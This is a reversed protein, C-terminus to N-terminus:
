SYILNNLINKEQGTGLYKFALICPGLKNNYDTPTFSPKKSALSFVSRPYQYCPASPFMQSKPNQQCLASPFMQSKPNHHCLSSPFMQSKPNQYCLASPFMQSKPKQYCPASPVNSIQSAPLLTSLPCNSRLSHFYSPAACIYTLPSRLIYKERDILKGTTRWNGSTLQWVQRSTAADSTLNIKKM